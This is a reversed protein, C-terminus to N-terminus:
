APHGPELDRVDQFSLQPAPEDAAEGTFPEVVLAVHDGPDFRDIIRAAVWAPVDSLVPVGDPGARWRCREFKDVEDGTQEGFLEALSRDDKTLFHLVVTEAQSVVDATHNAKSICVLFRAPDISCQTHFGVLCGSREGAAATTVIIMPYDLAGTIQSLAELSDGSL